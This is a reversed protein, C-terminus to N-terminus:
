ATNTEGEFVVSRFTVFPAHGSEVIFKVFRIGSAASGKSIQFQERQLDGERAPPNLDCEVLSEFSSPNTETCKLIKLGKIGTTILIVRALNVGSPYDPFAVLIEQPFMGTTSFFKKGDGGFAAEPPFRDDYSTTLIPDAKLTPM